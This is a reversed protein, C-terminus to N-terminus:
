DYNRRIFKTQESTLEEKEANHRPTSVAAGCFKKGDGGKTM